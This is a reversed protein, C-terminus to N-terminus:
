ASKRENYVMSLIEAVAKYLTEPIEEDLEVTKYLTRALPPDEHIYVNNAAAIEKIKIALLREGKAVVKPAADKEPDYRLAVAYHIPNSIVVDSNPVESTARKRSADMQAQRIRRKVEQDGEMQKFEDKVEQKTMKMDQMFKWRQYIFDALALIIMAISARIFVEITIRYALIAADQFSSGILKVIIDFKGILAPYCVAGIIFVKFIGKVLEVISNLSFIRKIGTLPNLQSFKLHLAGWALMPGTQVINAVIGVVLFMAFAPLLTLVVYEGTSAIIEMLQARDIDHKTISEFTSSMYDALRKLMFQGFFILVVASVLLSLANSLERSRPVQGKDRADSLRKSTPDESKEQGDQNEAM